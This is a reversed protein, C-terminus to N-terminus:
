SQHLSIVSLNQSVFSKAVNQEDEGENVSRQSFDQLGLFRDVSQYLIWSHGPLSMVQLKQVHILARRKM